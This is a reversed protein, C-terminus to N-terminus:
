RGGTIKIANNYKTKLEKASAHPFMNRWSELEKTPIDVEGSPETVGGTQTLHGKGRMANIAAQKSADARQATVRDYNALKYADVLSYGSQVKDLIMQANESGLIDDITKINSDFQRIQNMEDEFRRLNEQEQQREILQQAQLVMPNKSIMEELLQTDIGQAELQQRRALEDQADLAAFYDNQNRIPQGTMPNTMNGFRRVIEADRLRIEEEARRRAAAYRANEEASQVQPTQVDVNEDVVTDTEPTDTPEAVELTNASAEGEGEAFFQLNLPFRLEQTNM